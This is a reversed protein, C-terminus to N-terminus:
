RYLKRYYNLQQQKKQRSASEVFALRYSPLGVTCSNIKEYITSCLGEYLNFSSMVTINCTM